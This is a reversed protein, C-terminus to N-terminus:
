QIMCFWNKDIVEDAKRNVIERAIEEMKLTPLYRAEDTLKFLLEYRRTNNKRRVIGRGQVFTNAKRLEVSARGPSYGGRFQPVANLKGEKARILDGREHKHMYSDRHFIMARLFNSRAGQVRFGKMMWPRRLMYQDKAHKKVENNAERALETLAQSLVFPVKRHAIEEVNILDMEVKMEIM